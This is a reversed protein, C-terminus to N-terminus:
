NIKIVYRKLDGVTESLFYQAKGTIPNPTRRVVQFDFDTGSEKLQTYLKSKIDSAFEGPFLLETTRNGAKVSNKIKTIAEAVQFGIQIDAAAENFIIAEMQENTQNNLM